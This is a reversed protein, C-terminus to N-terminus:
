PVLFDFIPGVSKKAKEEGSKVTDKVFQENVRTQLLDECDKIKWLTKSEIDAMKAEVQKLHNTTKEDIQQLGTNM